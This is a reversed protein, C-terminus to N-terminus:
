VARHAWTLLHKMRLRNSWRRVGRNEVKWGHLFKKTCEEAVGGTSLMLSYHVGRDSEVIPVEKYLQKVSASKWFALVAVRLSKPPPLPKPVAQNKPPPHVKVKRLAHDINRWAGQKDHEVYATEVIGCQGGKNYWRKGFETENGGFPKGPDFFHADDFMNSLLTRAHFALCFGNLGHWRQHRTVSLPKKADVHAIYGWHHPDQPAGEPNCTPGYIGPYKANAAALILDNVSTNVFADHNLLVIVHIGARLCRWIGENWTYTLGGSQDKLYKVRVGPFAKHIELNKGQGVNVYVFITASPVSRQVRAICEYVHRHENGHTTIVFGSRIDM